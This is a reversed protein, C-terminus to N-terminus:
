SPSEMVGRFEAWRRGDCHAHPCTFDLAGSGFIIVAAGGPGTTHEHAWPCIVEVLYGDRFPKMREVVVGWRDLKALLAGALDDPPPVSPGAWARRPRAPHQARAVLWDLYSQAEALRDPTDPWRHGTVAIYRADCYVEIQDGKLAEAIQGRVFIHLGTGGPSWETWSQCREVITRARPDLQGDADLVRDLDVCTIKAAPTLVVGIGDVRRTPRSWATVAEEFTGWTAPDTSSAKRRPDSIRYPVKTPKGKGRSEARWLVWPQARLAPPIHAPIPPLWTMAVNGGTRAVM